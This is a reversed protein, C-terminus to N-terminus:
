ESEDSEVVVRKRARPVQSVVDEREGESGSGISGTPSETVIGVALGVEDDSGDGFTEAPAHAKKARGKPRARPKPRVEEEEEEWDGSSAQAEEEESGGNSGAASSARSM